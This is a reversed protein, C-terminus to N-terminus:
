DVYKSNHSLNVVQDDHTIEGPFGVINFYITFLDKFYIYFIHRLIMCFINKKCIKVFRCLQKTQSFTQTNVIIRKSSCKTNIMICTTLTVFCTCLYANTQINQFFPELVPAKSISGMERVIIITHSKVHYIWIMLMLPFALGDIEWFISVYKSLKM